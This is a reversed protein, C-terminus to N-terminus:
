GRSSRHAPRGFRGPRPPEPDTGRPDTPESEDGPKGAKDDPGGISIAPGGLPIATSGGPDTRAADVNGRSEPYRKKADEAQDDDDMDAFLPRDSSSATQTM